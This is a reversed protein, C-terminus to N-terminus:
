TGLEKLTEEIAMRVLPNIDKFNTTTKSNNEKNKYCLACEYRLLIPDIM